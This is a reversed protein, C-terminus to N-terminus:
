KNRYKKRKYVFGGVIIVLIALPVIFMYISFWIGHSFTTEEVEKAEEYPIRTGRVLLRHTNVGYPTCTLLTVYDEGGVIELSSVDPPEIVSIRDVQYALTENLVHIYFVDGEEMKDLETFLLASPLGRHASIVSHSNEGGIPLSSEVIHGASKSLVEESTGHYIPLYVNIKPIDIYGMMGDHNVNLVELYNDPLAYGSGIVFPDHVPEGSLNENYTKAMEWQKALEDASEQDITAEYTHINNRQENEAILNSIAPYLFIGAGVVFLLIPALFSFKNKSM